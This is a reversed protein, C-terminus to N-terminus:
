LLVSLLFAVHVYNDAYGVQVMFRVESLGLGEGRLRGYCLYRLTARPVKGGLVQTLSYSSVRFWSLDKLM